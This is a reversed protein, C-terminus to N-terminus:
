GEDRILACAPIGTTSRVRRRNLLWAAGLGLLALSAPEPIVVQNIYFGVYTAATASDYFISAADYFDGTLSTTDDWTLKAGLNTLTTVHDGAWMLGYYIGTHDDVTGLLASLPADAFTIDILGNAGVSLTATGLLDLGGSEGELQINISGRSVTATAVATAGTVSLTAGGALNVVGGDGTDSYSSGVTLTGGIAISSGAGQDLTGSSYGWTTDGSGIVVNGGIDLTGVTSDYTLTGRSKRSYGIYLNSSAGSLSLTATEPVIYVGGTGYSTTHDANYNGIYLDGTIDVESGASQVLAGGCSGSGSSAVKLDGTVALSANEGVLYVGGDGTNSYSSGVILSGGIAIASGAGQDLTGTSPGYTAHGSAITVSGGIDLTGVTSDYDLRGRAAAGGTAINLSSSAGLLRLTATEPVVLIGGQGYSSTHTSRDGGIQLNGTVNASSGASLILAGATSHITTHALTLDGTVDLSANEGLLYVAGDDSSAFQGGITLDGGVSVSSSTSQNVTASAPGWTDHGYAMRMNGGIDLTGLVNLTGANGGGGTSVGIDLASAAGSQGDALTTTHSDRVRVTDISTPVQAPSWHSATNWDGNANFLTITTQGTAFNAFAVACLAIFLMLVAGCRSPARQKSQRDSTTKM